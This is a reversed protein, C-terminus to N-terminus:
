WEYVYVDLSVLNVNCDTLRIQLKSDADYVSPTVFHRDMQRDTGDTSLLLPTCNTQQQAGQLSSINTSLQLRRVLQRNINGHRHEAAFAPLSHRSSYPEM